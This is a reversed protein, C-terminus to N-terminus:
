TNVFQAGPSCVHSVREWFYFFFGDKAKLAFGSPIERIDGSKKKEEDAKRVYKHIYQLRENWINWNYIDSFSLTHKKIKKKEYQDCAM